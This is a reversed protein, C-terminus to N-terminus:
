ATRYLTQFSRGRTWYYVLSSWFVLFLISFYVILLIAYWPLGSGKNSDDDSDRYDNHHYETGDPSGQSMQGGEAIRAVLRLLPSM